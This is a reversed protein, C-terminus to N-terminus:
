PFLVRRAWQSLRYTSLKGRNMWQQPYRGALLHQPFLGKATEQDKITGGYQSPYPKVFGCYKVDSKV